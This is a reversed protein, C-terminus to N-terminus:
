ENKRKKYKLSLYAISGIFTLTSFILGLYFLRQPIFEIVIEYDKRNNSDEPTVYWSNAYDNVLFHREEPISKKFWNEFIDKNIFDSGHTTEKISGDFYSAVVDEYREEKIDEEIYAKWGPHFSESFVLNYPDSANEIKVKYKTPNVKFFTMQPSNNFNDDTNLSIRAFISPEIMRKIKINEVIVDGAFRIYFNAGSSLPNSKVLVEFSKKEGYTHSPAEELIVIEKDTKKGSEDYTWRIEGIDIVLWDGKKILYDGTIKYLSNKEWNLIKKSYFSKNTPVPKWQDDLLIEKEMLNFVLRNEGKELKKVESISEEGEYDIFLQYDGEKPADLVYERTELSPQEYLSALKNELEYWFTDEVKRKLVQKHDQLHNLVLQGQENNKIMKIIKEMAKKYRLLTEELYKGELNFYVIENVRKNVYLIEKNFIDEKSWLSLYKFYKEKAIVLPYIFSSPHHKVYPYFVGTKLWLVDKDPWVVNSLKNTQLGKDLKAKLWVEEGRGSLIDFEKKDESLYYIAPKNYSTIKFNKVQDFFEVGFSSFIIDNAFYFHPLYDEEPFKYVKFLKLDKELEFNKSFDSIKEKDKTLLDDSILWNTDERFVIKQVNLLSLLKKANYFDGKDIFINLLRTLKSNKNLISRSLFQRLYDAGQYGDDWDFSLTDATSIPLVLYRGNVKNLKDFEKFQQYENPIKILYSRLYNGGKSIVEGTLFPFGLFIVPIIFFLVKLKFKKYLFNLGFSFIVTYPLIYFFGFKTFGGRFARLIYPFKRYFLEFFTAIPSYLGCIFIAGILFSFLWFFKDKIRKKILYIFGFIVVVTPIYSLFIFWPSLFIKHWPYYFEGYGAEFSWLGLLRFVEFFRVSNLKITPLDNMLGIGLNSAIQYQNQFDTFLPLLWFLNFFILFSFFKISIFFINKLNGYDKLLFKNLLIFFVYLFLSSCFIIFFVPNAFSTTMPMLFILFSALVFNMEGRLVKVFFAIALPFFSYFPFYLGISLYWVVVSAFPNLMYFLAGIIRPIRKVGITKLLFYSSLGSFSFSIYFLLREYVFSDNFIFQLIRGYFVYPFFLAPMRALSAGTSVTKEWIYLATNFYESFDAHWTFTGGSIFQAKKFWTLSFLGLIFFILYDYRYNSKIKQWMNM